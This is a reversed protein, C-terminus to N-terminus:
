LTPKKCFASCNRLFNKCFLGSLRGHNRSCFPFGQGSFVRRVFFAAGPCGGRQPALAPLGGADQFAKCGSPSKRRAQM